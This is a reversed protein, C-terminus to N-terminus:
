VCKNTKDPNRVEVNAVCAEDGIDFHLSLILKPHSTPVPLTEEDMKKTAITRVDCLAAAFLGAHGHIGESTDLLLCCVVPSSFFVRTIM